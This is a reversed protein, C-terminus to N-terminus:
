IIAIETIEPNNSIPGTADIIVRDCTGSCNCDFDCQAHGATSNLRPTGATVQCRAGVYETNLTAVMVYDDGACPYNNTKLTVTFAATQTPSVAVDVKFYPFFNMFMVFNIFNIFAPARM